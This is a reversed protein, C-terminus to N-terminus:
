ASAKHLAWGLFFVGGGFAAMWLMTRLDASPDFLAICPVLTAALGSLQLIVGLSYLVSKM